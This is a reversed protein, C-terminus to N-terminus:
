PPAPSPPVRRQWGRRSSSQPPPPSPAPLSPNTRPQWRPQLMCCCATARPVRSATHPPTCRLRAAAHPPTCLHTIAHPPTRYLLPLTRSQTRCTAPLMHFPPPHRCCCRLCHHAPPPPTCRHAARRRKLHCHHLEINSIRSQKKQASLVQFPLSDYWIQQPMLVVLFYAGSVLIALYRLYNATMPVYSTSM